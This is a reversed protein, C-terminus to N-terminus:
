GQQQQSREKPKYLVAHGNAKELRTTIQYPPIQKVSSSSPPKQVAKMDQNAAQASPKMYAASNESEPMDTLFFRQALDYRRPRSGCDVREPLDCNMTDARLLQPPACKQRHAKGINCIIFGACDDPDPYLGSKRNACFDSGAAGGGSATGPASVGGGGGTSPRPPPSPPPSPPPPPLPSSPGSGEGPAMGGAPYPPKNGQGACKISAPGAGASFGAFQVNSLINNDNQMSPLVAERQEGTVATVRVAVPVKTNRAQLKVYWPNSGTFRFMINGNKGSVTPCDIAKTKIEWRGDGPIYLDYGGKGCGGCLDHVIAKIVGTVPDSGSGQGSGTIEVCMGCGLSKQFDDRGAAVRIWGPQSSMPSLPDLACAGGGPYEGYYTAESTYTQQYRNYIYEASSVDTARKHAVFDSGTNNVQFQKIDDKCTIGEILFGFVFVVFYELFSRKRDMSGLTNVQFHLRKHQM